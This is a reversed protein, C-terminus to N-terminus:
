CFQQWFGHQDQKLKTSWLWISHKQVHNHNEQFWWHRCGKWQPVTKLPLWFTRGLREWISSGRFFLWLRWFYCFCGLFPAVSHSCTSNLLNVYVLLFGLCHSPISHFTQCHCFKGNNAMHPLGVMNGQEMLHHWDSCFLKWWSITTM